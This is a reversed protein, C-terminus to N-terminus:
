PAPELLDLNEPAYRELAAKMAAILPITAANSTGDPLLARANRVSAAVATRDGWGRKPDQDDDVKWGRRVAISAAQNDTRCINRFAEPAKDRLWSLRTALDFGNERRTRQVAAIHMHDLPSLGEADPAELLFARPQDKWWSALADALESFSPLRRVQRAVYELSQLTFAAEPYGTLFPLMAALAKAADASNSPAVLKALMAVWVRRDTVPTM